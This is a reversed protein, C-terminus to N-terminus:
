AQPYLILYLTPSFILNFYCCVHESYTGTIAIAIDTKSNLAQPYLILYLTPSFILNSYSCVHESYTSHSSHNIAAKMPEAASKSTELKFVCVSRQMQKRLHQKPSSFLIIM